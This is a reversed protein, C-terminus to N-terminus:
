KKIYKHLAKIILYFFYIFFGLLLINFILWLLEGIDSYAIKM